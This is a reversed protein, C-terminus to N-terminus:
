AGFTVIRYPWLLRQVVAPMDGDADGRQEYMFPALLLIAHRIPAPVSDPSPYGAVFDVSVHDSNLSLAAAPLRFRAPSGVVDTDYTSPDAITDAQGWTGYSVQSISQVPSRPLELPRQQLFGWTVWQPIIVSIGPFAGFSPSSQAMTWRLTQKVLVRGLFEEIWSRASAVYLKIVEDDTPRPAKAPPDPLRTLRDTSSNTPWSRLKVSRARPATGKESGRSGEGGPAIDAAWSRAM